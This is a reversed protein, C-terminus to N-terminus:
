EFYFCTQRNSSFHVICDDPYLRAVVDLGRGDTSLMFYKSWIGEDAAASQRFLTALSWAGATCRAYRIQGWSASEYGSIHSSALDSFMIHADGSNDFALVPLIGTFHGGDTGFYDDATDALIEETWANAGSRRYYVLQSLADSGTLVNYKLRVAVAPWGQSDVALSANPFYSDWSSHTKYAVVENFWTGGTNSLYYLTGPWTVDDSPHYQFSLVVHANGSSDVVFDRAVLWRSPGVTLSMEEDQWVGTRNSYYRVRLIETNDTDWAANLVHFYGNPDICAKVDYSGQDQAGIVDNTWNTGSRYLHEMGNGYYGTFLHPELAADMVLAVSAWGNVPVNQYRVPGDSLMTGAHSVVEWWLCTMNYEPDNKGYLLAVAQDGARVATALITAIHLVNTEQFSGPVDNGGSFYVSVMADSERYFAPDTRSDGDYDGVAPVDGEGGFGAMSVLAYNYLSLKVSWTGDVERYIAPDVRRDGDFDGVVPQYGTGGFMLSAPAYGSASLMVQWQGAQGSGAQPSGASGTSPDTEAYVAPDTKGDGDYDGIVPQYGVGGFTTSAPAYGSASLKVQWQGTTESVVAPDDLGDGDFDGSVPVCGSGGLTMSATAYGSASLMVQWQGTAANFVVPDAKGDGDYDGIGAVYGSGGFTTSAQAYNNMSLLVQWRGNSEEFVAPDAKSDGDFDACGWVVHNTGGVAVVSGLPSLFLFWGIAMFQAVRQKM